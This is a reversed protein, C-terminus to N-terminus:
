VKGGALGKNAHRNLSVAAGCVVTPVIAYFIGIHLFIYGIWMVMGAFGAGMFIQDSKNTIFAFGAGAAILLIITYVVNLGLGFFSFIGFANKEGNTINTFTIQIYMVPRTVNVQSLASVSYGTVNGVSLNYVYGTMVTVNIWQSTSSHLSGNFTLNWSTGSPLGIESFYIYATINVAYMTFVETLTYNNGDLAIYGQPVSPAIYINGYTQNIQFYYTGNPLLFSISVAATNISDMISGNNTIFGSWATGYFGGPLGGQINITFINGSVESYTTNFYFEVAGISLSGTSPSAEYTHSNSAAPSYTYSVTQSQAFSTADIYTSSTTYTQQLYTGDVAMGSITVSWSTGSPLGIEGMQITAQSYAPSYVPKSVGTQVPMIGGIAVSIIAIALVLYLIKM